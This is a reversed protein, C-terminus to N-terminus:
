LDEFWATLEGLEFRDGAPMTADAFRRGQRSLMGSPSLARIRLGDPGVSVEAHEDVISAHDLKVRCRASRGVLHRGERLLVTAVEAEGYTVHLRAAVERRVAGRPSSPPRPLDRPPFSPSTSPKVHRALQDHRARAKALAADLVDAGLTETETADLRLPPPRSVIPSESLLTTADGTLMHGPGLTIAEDPDSSLHTADGPDVVQRAAFRQTRAEDGPWPASPQGHTAEADEARPSAPARPRSLAAAVADLSVRQTSAAAHVDAATPEAPATGSADAALAEAPREAESDADGFPEIGVSDPLEGTSFIDEAEEGFGEDDFAEDSVEDGEEDAAMAAALVFEDEVAPPEPAPAHLLAVPPPTPLPERHEGPAALGRLIEISFGLSPSLSVWDGGVLEAEDMAEGNVMLPGDNRLVSLGQPTLRLTAHHGVITPDDVIIDCDEASGIPNDAGHLTLKGGDPTVIAAGAVLTRSMRELDLFALETDDGLAVVDGHVLPRAEQPALKEGNLRTGNSSGLDEVRWSGGGFSFRVHRRSLNADRLPLDCDAARGVLCGAAEMTIALGADEGKRCSLLPRM